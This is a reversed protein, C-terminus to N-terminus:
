SNVCGYETLPIESLIYKRVFSMASEMDHDEYIMYVLAEITDNYYADGTEKEEETASKPFIIYEKLGLSRGIHALNADTNLKQRICDMKGKTYGGKEMLYKFLLFDLLADGALAHQKKIESNVTTHDLASILKNKDRFGICYKEEFGKWEQYYKDVIDNPSM